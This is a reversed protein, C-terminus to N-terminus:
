RRPLRPLRESHFRREGCRTGVVVRVTLTQYDFNETGPTPLSRM